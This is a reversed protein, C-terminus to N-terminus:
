DQTVFSAPIHAAPATSLVPNRCKGTQGSNTGAEGDIQDRMRPEEIFREVSCAICADIVVSVTAQHNSNSAKMNVSVIRWM